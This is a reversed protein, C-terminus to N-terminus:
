TADPPTRVVLVSRLQAVDAETANRVSTEKVVFQLAGEKKVYIDAIRPRFTLTDGAFVMADYRFSQEAHLTRRLDVGLDTMYRFPEPQDLELCFLFTPPAPLDPYGSARAADVDVYAPDSEGISQAFFRLRGREITAQFSPLDTGAATLDIM